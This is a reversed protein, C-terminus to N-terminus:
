CTLDANSGNADLFSYTGVWAYNQLNWRQLSRVLGHFKEALSVDELEIETFFM